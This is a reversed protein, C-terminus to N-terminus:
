ECDEDYPLEETVVKSKSTRSYSTRTQLEPVTDAIEEEEDALYGSIDTYKLHLVHYGIKGPAYYGTASSPGPTPDGTLYVDGVNPSFNQSFNPM